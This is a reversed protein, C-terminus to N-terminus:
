DAAFHGVRDAWGRRQRMRQRRQRVVVEAASLGAWAKRGRWLGALAALGSEAATRKKTGRAANPPVARKGMKKSRVVPGIRVVDGERLLVDQEPVIVGGRVVGRMAM